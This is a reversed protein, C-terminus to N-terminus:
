RYQEGPRVMLVMYVSEGRVWGLAYKADIIKYTYIITAMNFRIIGLIIELLKHLTIISGKQKKIEM